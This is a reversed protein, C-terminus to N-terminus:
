KVIIKKVIQEFQSVVDTSLSAGNENYLVILQNNITTCRQSQGSHYDPGDPLWGIQAQNGNTASAILVKSDKQYCGGSKVTSNKSDISIANKQDPFSIILRDKVSGGSPVVPASAFSAGPHAKIYDFDYVLFGAPYYITLTDVQAWKGGISSTKVDNTQTTSSNQQTNQTPQVTNGQSEPLVNSPLGSDQETTVSNVQTTKSKYFLLGGLLLAVLVIVLVLARSFGKNYKM